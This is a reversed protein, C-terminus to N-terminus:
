KEDFIMVKEACKRLKEKANERWNLANARGWNGGFIMRKGERAKASIKFDKLASICGGGRILKVNL